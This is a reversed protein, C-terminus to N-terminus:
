RRYVAMWVQSFSLIYMLLAPKLRGGAGFVVLVAHDRDTLMFIFALFQSLSLSLSLSHYSAISPPRVCPPIYSKSLGPYFCTWEKQSRPISTMFVAAPNCLVNNELGHSFLYSLTFTFTFTFKLRSCAVFAWPPSSIYLEVRGEAEASSLPPHDVGRGPRKIGSFSGTGVTYSAPYAGHGTQVPASFRAGVNDLKCDINTCM